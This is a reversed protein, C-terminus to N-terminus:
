VLSDVIHWLKPAESTWLADKSAGHPYFVRARLREVFNSNELPPRFRVIMGAQQAEVVETWLAAPPTLIPLGNALYEFLKTPMCRASSPHRQYPLLGLHSRQIEAVIRAHPVLEAGGILTIGPDAAVIAQLHALVEPQQCFGIITLHAAPWQERLKQTFGIAEFVGNLKSITGSYLLRLPESPEPLARAQTPVSEGPQPQYKNELIVTHEETTFPLEDAYSREALIIQAARRAATTEIRRVLGALTRRLWGPYVQQTLINLAYNERVDYLFHRGPGLSRWLLTLPLLEPAHVIVLRPKLTKLLRWYRWQAVLRGLSLRSGALLEHTHLNAPANDPRPARRGAVHVTLEPRSALTRGFKGFMRTDDLPKLVSALM